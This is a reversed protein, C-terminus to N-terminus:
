LSHELVSLLLPQLTTSHLGIGAAVHVLPRRAISVLLPKLAEMTKAEEPTVSPQVQPPEPVLSFHALYLLWVFIAGIFAGALPFVRTRAHSHLNFPRSTAGM